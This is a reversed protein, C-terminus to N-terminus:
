PADVVMDLWRNVALLLEAKGSVRESLLERAAPDSFGRLEAFWAAGGDADIYLSILLAASRTRESPM